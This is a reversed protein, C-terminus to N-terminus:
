QEHNKVEVDVKISSGFNHASAEAGYVGYRIGMCIQHDIDSLCEVLVLISAAVPDKAVSLHNKFKWEIWRKDDAMCNGRVSLVSEM